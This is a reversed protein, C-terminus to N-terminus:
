TDSNLTEHQLSTHISQQRLNELDPTLSSHRTLLNALKVVVLSYHDVLHAFQIPNTLKPANELAQYMLLRIRAIYEQIDTNSALDRTAHSPNTGWPFNELEALDIEGRAVLDQAIRYYDQLWSATQPRTIQHHLRTIRTLRTVSDSYIESILRHASWDSVGPNLQYLRDILQKL